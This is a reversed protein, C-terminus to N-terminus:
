NGVPHQIGNWVTDIRRQKEGIEQLLRLVARNDPYSLLEVMRFFSERMLQECLRLKEATDAEKGNVHYSVRECYHEPSPWSGHRACTIFMDIFSRVIRNWAAEGESGDNTAGTIVVPMGERVQKHFADQSEEPSLPLGDPASNERGFRM